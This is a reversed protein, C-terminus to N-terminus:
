KLPTLWLFAKTFSNRFQQSLLSCELFFSPGAPTVKSTNVRICLMHLINIGTYCLLLTTSISQRAHSYLIVCYYHPQYQNGLMHTCYIVCYCYSQYGLMGRNGKKDYLCASQVKIWYHGLGMREWWMCSHVKGWTLGRSHTWQWM